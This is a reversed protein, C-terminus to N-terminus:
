FLNISDYKTEFFVFYRNMATKVILFVMEKRRINYKLSFYIYLFSFTSSVTRSGACLEKM